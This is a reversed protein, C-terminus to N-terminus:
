EILDFGQAEVQMFAAALDAVAAYLRAQPQARVTDCLREVWTQVHARFFRRQQELNCVEIDEGAILYRMVEFVASVHDETQTVHMPRQLGLGALDTRLVALPKENVFGALYYSGFLFVEPKGVGGFLADYEDAAAALTTQRMAGVLAMWPAELFGGAEPAETVAVAFQQLLAADPPAQFLRALVGYLEARALEEADDPAAFSLPNSTM